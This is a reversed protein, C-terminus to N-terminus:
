GNVHFQVRSASEAALPRLKGFRHHNILALQLINKNIDFIPQTLVNNRLRRLRHHEILQSATVMRVHQSHNGSLSQADQIGIISFVIHMGNRLIVRLPILALHRMARGFIAAEVIWLQHQRDGAVLM